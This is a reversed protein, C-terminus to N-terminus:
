RFCVACPNRSNPRSSNGAGALFLQSYITFLYQCYTRSKSHKTNARQCDLLSSRNDPGSANALSAAALPHDRASADPESRSDHDGQTLQQTLQGSFRKAPKELMYLAYSAEIYHTVDRFFDREVVLGGAHLKTSPSALGALGMKPWHGLESPRLGAPTIVQPWCVPRNM